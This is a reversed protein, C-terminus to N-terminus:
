EGGAPPTLQHLRKILEQEMECGLVYGVTTSEIYSFYLGGTSSKYFMSLLADLLEADTKM